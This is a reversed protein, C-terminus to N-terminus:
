DVRINGSGAPQTITAAGAEPDNMSHRRVTRRLWFVLVGTLILLAETPEPCATPGDITAWTVGNADPFSTTTVTGAPPNVDIHLISGDPSTTLVPTIADPAYLSVSFTTGTISQGDIGPGCLCVTFNLANGWVIQEFIDNFTTTNSLYPLPSGALSGSASGTDTSPGLMGDTSIGYISASVLLADSAGPNLQIDVFGSGLSELSSTNLSIDYALSNANLETTANVLAVILLASFSVTRGYLM